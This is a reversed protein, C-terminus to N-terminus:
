AVDKRKYDANNEKRYEEFSDILDWPNYPVPFLWTLLLEKFHNLKSSIEKNEDIASLQESRSEDIASIKETIEEDLVKTVM